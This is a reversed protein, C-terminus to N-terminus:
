PDHDYLLLQLHNEFPPLNNNLLIENVSSILTARQTAYYPCLLLFHRTDEVGRECLCNESCIDAFNHQMKHSRLPSLGVRLQFLYRLGVPDHVGFISRKKPRFLSLM